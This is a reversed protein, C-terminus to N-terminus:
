SDWGVANSNFVLGFLMTALASLVSVPSSEIEDSFEQELQIKPENKNEPIFYRYAVVMVVFLCSLFGALSAHRLVGIKRPICFPLIAMISVVPISFRRSFWWKGSTDTVAEFVRDLQDGLVIQFTICGGYACLVTVIITFTGFHYGCLGSM